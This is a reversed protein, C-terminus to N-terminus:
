WAAVNLLLNRSPKLVAGLDSGYAAPLAQRGASQVAVRTDNSHFGKGTTFYIETKDNPYFYFNLKPSLLGTNKKSILDNDLKDKYSMNFYDRRLGANISFRESLRFTENLFLATNLEKIDGLKLPEILTTRRKTRSLESNNTQDYRASVGIESTIKTNGAYRVDTYSGNYGALNRKEKQKIEDGNISDVYFFTFNSYLEFDYKTFYLQNKIVNGNALTTQLRANLNTRGTNGGENPDIAGFYSILGESVAREPIQGSAKWKSNFVSASINLTNNANLKGYYKGFLNIRNFHQPNEFYGNTYMYESGIYASQNKQRMKESLLNVMGVARWANFQGAELRVMNKDLMNKTRFDVFGTTALNGKEAYYPGKKFQVNEILEPIVFHLDAYGQGHAHSVMNVPMGDVGINIDTGHDIDFGRLFIQEAKGGGAHQGIFLGPVIPLVEQSNNIGRLQIDTKSIPRFQDGANMSITVSSLEATQRSLAISCGANVFDHFSIAITEFGIVSVKISDINEFSKIFFAGQEDSMLAQKSPLLSITAGEIPINTGTERVIGQKGLSRTLTQTFGIAPLCLMMWVIFHFTSFKM